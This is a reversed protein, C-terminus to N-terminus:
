WWSCVGVCGIGGCGMSSLYFKIDLYEVVRLDCIVGLESFIFDRVFNVALIVVM